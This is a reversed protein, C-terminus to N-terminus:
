CNLRPAIMYQKRGLADRGGESMAYIFGQFDEELNVLFPMKDAEGHAVAIAIDHKRSLKRLAKLFKVAKDKDVM